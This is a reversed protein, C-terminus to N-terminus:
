RDRRNEDLIALIEKLSAVPEARPPPGSSALPPTLMGSRVADALTPSSTEKPPGIEAAHGGGADHGSKNRADVDQPM